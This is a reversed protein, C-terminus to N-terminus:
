FGRRVLQGERRKTVSRYHLPLAQGIADRLWRAMAPQCLPNLLGTHGANLRNWLM